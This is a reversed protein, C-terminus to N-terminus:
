VVWYSDLTIILVVVFIFSYLLVICDVCSCRYCCVWYCAVCVVVWLLRVAAVFLDCLWWAFLVVVFWCLAQFGLGEVFVRM